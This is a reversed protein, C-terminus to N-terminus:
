LSSVDLKELTTNRSLTDCLARVGDLRIDNGDLLLMTLTTNVELAECITQIGSTDMKNSSLYLEKVVTNHKLGEAIWKAGASGINNYSLALKVVTSNRTLLKGISKAGDEKIKNSVLVLKKLTSNVELAECIFSVGHGISNTSLDLSTLTKNRKLAYGIAEAGVEGIENIGLDLKTINTNERLATTLSHIKVNGLYSTRRDGYMTLKRVPLSNTRLLECYAEFEFGNFGKEWKFKTEGEVEPLVAKVKELANKLEMGERGSLTKRNLREELTQIRKKLDKNEEMSVTLTQELEGIRETKNLVVSETHNLSSKCLEFLETENLLGLEELQKLEILKLPRRYHSMINKKDEMSLTAENYKVYLRRISFESFDGPQEGYEAESLFDQPLKLLCGSVVLDFRHELNRRNFLSNSLKKILDTISSDQYKLCDFFMTVGAEPENKATTIMFEEIREGIKQCEKFQLQSFVIMAAPCEEVTFIQDEGYCFRLWKLLVARYKEDTSSTSFFWETKHTNPDYKGYCCEKCHLLGDLASSAFALKSRHLNLPQEIGPITFLVDPFCKEEKDDFLVDKGFPSEVKVKLDSM